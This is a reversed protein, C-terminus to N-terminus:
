RQGSLSADRIAKFESSSNWEPWTDSDALERGVQYYLLMDEMAGALDWDDRYEDSVKHYRNAVWDEALATGRAVGGVRFDVGGKAYLVPVGQKSLNFHDSRYFFGKEPTPEPVIFRDQLKAARALYAELESSGYGIAAVDRTRGLVNVGDMNIGAVTQALPYVPNTGYHRSGLLGSEEATVAMFLISRRPPGASVFAEAIEMLAATGTANDVAGNFIQDGELT